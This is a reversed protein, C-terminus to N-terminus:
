VKLSVKWDFVSGNYAHVVGFMSKSDTNDGYSADAFIELGGTGQNTYKLSQTKTGKLYRGIRKLAKWAFESPKTCERALHNVSIAIDPRTVHAIFSLKRVVSRYLTPNNFPKSDPPIKFNAVMPTDTANAQELNLAELVEQIKLSQNVLINGDQTRELQMSLYNKAEGLDKLDFHKKLEKVCAKYEKANDWIFM